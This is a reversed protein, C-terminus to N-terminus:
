VKLNRRVVIDFLIVASIILGTIASALAILLLLKM